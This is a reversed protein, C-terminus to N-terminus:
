NRALNDLTILRQFYIYIRTSLGIIYAHTYTNANTYSYGNTKFYSFRPLYLLSVWQVFIIILVFVHKILKEKPIDSKKKNKFYYCLPLFSINQDSLRQVINPDVIENVSDKHTEFTLILSSKKIWYFLHFFGQNRCYCLLYLIKVKILLV